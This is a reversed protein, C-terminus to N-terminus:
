EKGMKKNMKEVFPKLDDSMKKSLEKRRLMEKENRWYARNFEVFIAKYYAMFTSSHYHWYSGKKIGLIKRLDNLSRTPDVSKSHDKFDFDRIIFKRDAIDQVAIQYTCLMFRNLLELTNVSEGSETKSDFIDPSKQKVLDM